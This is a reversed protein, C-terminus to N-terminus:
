LITTDPPLSEDDRGDTERKRPRIPAESTDGANGAPRFLAGSDFKEPL